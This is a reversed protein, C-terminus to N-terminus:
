RKRRGCDFIHFSVVTKKEQLEHGRRGDQCKPDWEGHFYYPDTPVLISDIVIGSHNGYVLNLHTRKYNWIELPTYGDFKNCCVAFLSNSIKTVCTGLEIDPQWMTSIELDCVILCVRARSCVCVCVCVCYSEESATILEDCPGIGVCCVVFM